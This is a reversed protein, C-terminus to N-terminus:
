PIVSWWGALKASAQLLTSNTVL